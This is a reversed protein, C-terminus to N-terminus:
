GGAMSTEVGALLCTKAGCNLTALRLVAAGTDMWFACSSTGTLLAPVLRALLLSTAGLASVGPHVNWVVVEDRAPYTANASSGSSSAPEMGGPPLMAKVNPWTSTAVFAPAATRGNSALVESPSQVVVAAISSVVGASVGVIV